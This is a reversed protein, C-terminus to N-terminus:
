TKTRRDRDHSFAPCPPESPGQRVVGTSDGIAETDQLRLIGPAFIPGARGKPLRQSVGRTAGSVLEAAIGASAYSVHSPEAVSPM